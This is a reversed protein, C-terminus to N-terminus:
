SRRTFRVGIRRPAPHPSPAEGGTWMQEVILWHGAQNRLVLLYRGALERRSGGGTLTEEYDGSEYALKASQETVTRQLHMSSQGEGMAGQFFKRLAPTGMVRDGGSTFFIADPAYLTLIHDLRKASWDAAWTAGVDPVTPIANPRASLTSLLLVVSQLYM